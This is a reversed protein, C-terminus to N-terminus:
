YLIYIYIKDVKNPLQFLSKILNRLVELENAAIPLYSSAYVATFQLLTHSRVHHLCPIYKHGCILFTEKKRKNFGRTKPLQPWLNLVQQKFQPFLNKVLPWLKGFFFPVPACHLGM